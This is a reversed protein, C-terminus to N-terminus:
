SQSWDACFDTCVADIEMGALQQRYAQIMSRPHGQLEPSVLCIMFDKRLQEYSQSDLPLRSFCDVWVWDAKGRYALACEIPEFESYRVAIKREGKHVMQVLTPAACDLFFYDKIEYKAALRFIEKELGDCKVNFIALRHAYHSLLFDLSEGSQFPDHTCRLDGDYDRIDIEVGCHHPVTQLKSVSNVRHEILFM